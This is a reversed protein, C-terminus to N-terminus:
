RKTNLAESKPNRWFILIERRVEFTSSVLLDNGDTSQIVYESRLTCLFNKVHVQVQCWFIIIERRVEFTSSMLLDNGDRACLVCFTKVHVQCWLHNDGESGRINMVTLQNFMESRVWLVCFTKVPMTSLHNDGESGRINTVTLQNFMENRVWLVCFTKVHVTVGM